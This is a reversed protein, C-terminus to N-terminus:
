SGAPPKWRCTTISVPPLAVRLRRGGADLEVGAELDRSNVLQAVINGEPSRFSVCRVRPVEGTTAVRVAGPRVYRSFHALYYYLGTHRVEHTKRDVHVVAHQVNVDSNKHEPSVLWPGGDEDLILNWYIWASANSELDTLIQNVWYDGDEFHRQPIPVCRPTGSYYCHCIETQWLPLEPYKRVLAALGALEEEKLRYGHYLMASVYQRAEPDDLITPFNRSADPRDMAESAVLRTKVGEKRFLPGVHEKLLVRIKQYPITTYVGPENFLSLYDVFVGNREYEQLYRLYYRALAPFYRPDVDQNTAVDYLMWDPPYDMPAQLLFSGHQRARKIFTLVGNRGLDRAISFHKMEVDGATDDYSYWPGASMFDTGAIPTKMASFGAGKEPDFLSQLLAEQRDKPLSNLCIMGAEMFSAGFGAITQYRVSPDVRFDPKRAPAPAEFRLAPKPQLRDGGRSSVVM